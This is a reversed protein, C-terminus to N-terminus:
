AEQPPPAQAERRLRRVLAVAKARIRAEWQRRESAYPLIQTQWRRLATPSTIGFVFFHERQYRAEAGRLTLQVHVGPPAWRRERGPLRVHNMAAYLVIRSVLREARECARCPEPRASRLEGKVHEYARPLGYCHTALYQQRAQALRARRLLAEHADHESIAQAAETLFAVLGSASSPGSARTPPNGAFEPPM